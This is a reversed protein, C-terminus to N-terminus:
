EKVGGFTIGQIFQKQMFFFLIIVPVTMAAGVAMLLNWRPDNASMIQQIGLSLTYLQNNNLYILPGLFDGWTTIFTFIAVTTLVAKSLPLVIRSFIFLESAGDVRAAESLEKPIGMFFQRLLFIYFANGFFMPVILPLLTGIWHLKSFLIYLPIMTVQFPLMMTALVIVFVVNRGKWQIRAFGYAVFTNSVLAGLINFFVLILTNKLYLLFPFATFARTYNSFDWVHPIWTPPSTFLEQPTKLSSLILWLFPILFLLCVVILVTQSVWTSWDRKPQRSPNTRVEISSSTRLM